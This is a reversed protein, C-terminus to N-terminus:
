VMRKFPVAIGHEALVESVASGLGGIVSHNEFTVVAKKGPIEKLLLDVDLPKITFM